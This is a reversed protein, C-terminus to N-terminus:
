ALLDFLQTPTLQRVSGREELAIRLGPSRDDMALALRAGRADLEALARAAADLEALLEAPPAAPLSYDTPEHRMSRGTM